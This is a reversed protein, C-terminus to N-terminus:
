APSYAFIFHKEEVSDLSFEPGQGDSADLILKTQKWYEYQSRHMYFPTGGISGLNVDAGGVKFDDARYCMPAFGDCCGGSQYFLISGHRNKILEILSLAEDTAVVRETM